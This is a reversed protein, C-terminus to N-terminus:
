LLMGAPQALCAPAAGSSLIHKVCDFHIRIVQGAVALHLHEFLPGADIAYARHM